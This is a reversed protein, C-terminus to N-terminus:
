KQLARADLEARKAQQPRTVSQQPTLTLQHADFARNFVDVAAITDAAARKAGEIDGSDKRLQAVDILAEFRETVPAVGSWKEAWGLAQPLHQAKKENEFLFRYAASRHRNAPYRQLLEGYVALADAPRNADAYSRAIEWLADQNYPSGPFHSIIVLFNAAVKDPNQEGQTEIKALGFAISPAWVSGPNKDLVSHMGQKHAETDGYVGVTDDGSMNWPNGIDGVYRRFSPGFLASVPIPGFPAMQYRFWALDSDPLESLHSYGYGVKLVAGSLIYVCVICGATIAARRRHRVTLPSGISIVQRNHYLYLAFAGVLLVIKAIWWNMLFTQHMTNRQVTYFSTLSRLSLFPQIPAGPILDFAWYLAAVSFGALSNRFLTAFTLALMALFLTSPISALMPTVMDYPTQWFLQFAFLSVVALTWVLALMVVLRLFVLRGINVPRSALIAGVRSRYEASLLHAGLFAALIPTVVELSTSPIDESFKRTIGMWFVTLQSVAIPFALLLWNNLM